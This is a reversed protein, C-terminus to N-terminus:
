ISERGHSLVNFLNRHLVWLPLVFHGQVSSMVTGAYGTHASFPRKGLNTCLRSAPYAIKCLIASTYLENM